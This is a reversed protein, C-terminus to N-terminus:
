TWLFNNGELIGSENGRTGQSTHGCAPLPAPINLDPDSLMQEATRLLEIASGFGKQERRVKAELLLTDVTPRRQNVGHSFEAARAHEGARFFARAALANMWLGNQHRGALYEFMRAADLYNGEKLEAQAQLLLNDFQFPLEEFDP